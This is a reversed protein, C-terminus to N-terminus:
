MVAALWIYASCTVLRQGVKHQLVVSWHWLALMSQTNEHQRAAFAARWRLFHSAVLRTELLWICQRRLLQKRRSLAVYVRWRNFSSSVLHNNHRVVAREFKLRSVIASDRAAYWRHFTRRLTGPMLLLMMDCTLTPMPLCVCM